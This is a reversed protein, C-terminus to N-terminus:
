VSIIYEVITSVKGKQAGTTTQIMATGANLVSYSDTTLLTVTFIYKNM